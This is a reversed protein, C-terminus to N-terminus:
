KKNAFFAKIVAASPLLLFGGALVEKGEYGFYVAGCVCIVCIAFGCWQGIADSRFVSKVQLAKIDLDKDRAAIDADLKKEQLERRHSSETLSNEIILRASDPVIEDFRALYEPPPMLGQYHQMKFTKNGNEDDEMVAATARHSADDHRKAPLTKKRPKRNM